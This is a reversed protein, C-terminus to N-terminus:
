GHQSGAIATLFDYFFYLVAASLGLKILLGILNLKAPPADNSTSLTGCDKNAARFNHDYRLGTGPLGLTGRRIGLKGENLGININAGPKGVSLSCTLKNKDSWYFNWYLYSTVRLRKRFQVAM